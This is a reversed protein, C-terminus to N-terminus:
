STHSALKNGPSSPQSTSPARRGAGSAPGPAAQGRRSESPQHTGPLPVAQCLATWHLGLAVRHWCWAQSLQPGCRHWPSAVVALREWRYGHPHTCPQPHKHLVEFCPFLRGMLGMGETRGGTRSRPIGAPLTQRYAPTIDDWRGDLVGGCVCM